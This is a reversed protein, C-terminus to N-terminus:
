RQSPVGNLQRVLLQSDSKSQYKRQGMQLLAELEMLLGEYEAVNNTARSRSWAAMPRSFPLVVAQKAQTEEHREM